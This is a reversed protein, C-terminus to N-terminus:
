YESPLISFRAHKFGPSTWQLAVHTVMASSPGRRLADLLQNLKEAQGEAYVEVRDDGKNRVWGTLQLRDAVNQVFFRFGVGQVRGEVTAYVAKVEDADM